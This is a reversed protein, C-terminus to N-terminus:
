KICKITKNNELKYERVFEDWEADSLGLCLKNLNGAEPCFYERRPPTKLTYQCAIEGHILVTFACKKCHEPMDM